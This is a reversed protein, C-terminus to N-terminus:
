AVSEILERGSNRSSNVQLSVRHSSIEHEKMFLASAAEPTGKLWTSWDTKEVLVPMRDHIHEMSKSADRTVVAATRLWQGTEPNKWAELIGAM